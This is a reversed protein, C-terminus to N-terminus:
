FGTTPGYARLNTTDVQGCYHGGVEGGLGTPSLQSPTMLAFGYSSILSRQGCLLSQAANTSSTSVLLAALNPDFNGDNTNVVRDYAVINYVERLLSIPFASVNMAGGATEPNVGNVPLLVAEDFRPDHGTHQSIYQPISFPFIGNPDVTVPTGTDQQVPQGVYDAVTHGSDSQIAQYDWTNVTSGMIQSQWFKLTGSGAQPVYLDVPVISSCTVGAPLLSTSDPAAPTGVSTPAYCTSSGTTVGNAVADDGNKYMATLGAISFGVGSLASLNTAPTAETGSAAVNEITGAASGVSATVGDVAFPIYLLAGATPDVVSTNNAGFTGPASSSRAIDICDRQPLNSPLAGTTGGVTVTQGVIPTATALTTAPEGTAGALAGRLDVLGDTSGNPRNFSCAEAPLANTPSTNGSAPIGTKVPTIIEHSAGTVENVANYSGVVNGGLATAWANSFDQTVDAGVSVYNDGPDALAPTQNLALSTLGAIAVGTVMLSRITRRGPSKLKV